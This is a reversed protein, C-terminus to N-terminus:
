SVPLVRPAVAQQIASGTSSEGTFTIGDIGPHATILAGTDGHGHVVNYVGEPLGAEALIEGLLTASAPTEESPKVIVTNGMALAPAVKWTLLLLPLNWPVIVGVVGLPKRVAYQLAMGGAAPETLYSDLGATAALDAFARFNASARTIDLTRALQEPKGTDRIEAQLLDESREEIRDAI